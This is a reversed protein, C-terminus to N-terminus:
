PLPSIIADLHLRGVKKDYVWITPHIQMLSGPTITNLFRINGRHLSVKIIKAAIQKASDDGLRASVKIELKM